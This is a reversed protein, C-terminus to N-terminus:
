VSVSYRLLAPSLSLYCQVKQSWELANCLGGLWSERLLYSNKDKNHPRQLVYMYPTRLSLEIPLQPPPAAWGPPYVYCMEWNDPSLMRNQFGSTSHRTRTPNQNSTHTKKKRTLTRTCHRSLLFPSTFATPRVGVAAAASHFPRHPPVHVREVSCGTLVTAHWHKFNAPRRYLAVFVLSLYLKNSKLLKVFM